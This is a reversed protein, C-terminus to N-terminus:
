KETAGQTNPHAAAYVAIEYAESKRTGPSCVVGARMESVSVVPRRTSAVVLRGLNCRKTRDTKPMIRKM